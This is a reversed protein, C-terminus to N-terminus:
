EADGAAMADIDVDAFDLDAPAEMQNQLAKM